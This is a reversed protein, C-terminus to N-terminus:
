RDEKPLACLEILIGGAAQPHIFGVKMRSTEDILRAGREKYSKLEAGIDDVELCIHHIGPGWNALFKAQGTEEKTREVLEINSEGVSFFGLTTDMGEMVELEELSLGLIKEYFRAAEEM